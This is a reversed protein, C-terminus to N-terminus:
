LVICGLSKGKQGHKAGWTKLMGLALFLTNVGQEELTSRADRWTKLLRIYLKSETENTNLKNDTTDVPALKSSGEEKELLSEEQLDPKGIFIMSKGEKVLLRYVEVPDEGVVEVGSAKSPRYNILKNRLSTDLLNRRAAELRQRILDDRCNSM